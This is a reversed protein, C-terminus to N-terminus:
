SAATRVSRFATWSTTRVARFVTCSASFFIVGVFVLYLSKNGDADVLFYMYLSFHAEVFPLHYQEKRRRMKQPYGIQM